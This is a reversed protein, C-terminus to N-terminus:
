TNKSIRYKGVMLPFYREVMTILPIFLLVIVVALFIDFYSKPLFVRVLDIFFIHFGLIIITGRSIITIPKFTHRFLKSLAFIMMTGAVGGVLFFLLNGGYDCRYMAVYNNNHDSIWVFFLSCIFVLVLKIKNNWESVKCIFDHVFVGFAFFPYATCVDVVASPASLFFPYNSLVIINYIYALALMILVLSYFLEKSPCYQFMIKLLILTLVFWLAGYGSVMGFLVNRAFWYITKLEFTGDSIQLICAYIYNIVVMILMPVALNYWIKNWFMCVDKEKKSLIGSIVFFLPVHFIYLQKEGISYFHGLVILYIGLVKMWDIWEQRNHSTLTAMKKMFVVNM